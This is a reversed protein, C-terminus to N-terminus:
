VLVPARVGRWCRLRGTSSCGSRYLVGGACLRAVQLMRLRLSAVPCQLHRPPLLFLPLFSGSVSEALLWARRQRKMCM